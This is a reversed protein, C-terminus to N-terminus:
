EEDAAKIAKMETILRYAEDLKEEMWNIYDFCYVTHYRTGREDRKEYSADKGTETRYKEEWDM